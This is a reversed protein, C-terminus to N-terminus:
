VYNEEYPCYLFPSPLMRGKIISKKCLILQQNASGCFPLSIDRMEEIYPGDVLVDTKQLIQQLYPSSKCRKILEQWTYGTYVWLSKQRLKDLLDLTNQPDMLPDGGSLTLGDCYERDLLSQIYQIVQDTIPKGYTVDWTEPNHCGKCHHPCGSLFLTVRVGKGNAIDTKIIGAYNM